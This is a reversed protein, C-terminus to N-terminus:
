GWVSLECGGLCCDELHHETGVEGNDHGKGGSTDDRGGLWDVADLGVSINDTVVERVGLNEALPVVTSSASEGRDVSEVGLLEVVGTGANEALGGVWAWGWGLVLWGADGLLAGGLGLVEELGLDVLWLGEARQPLVGFPAAGVGEGGHATDV